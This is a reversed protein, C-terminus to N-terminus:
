AGVGSKMETAVAHAWKLREVAVGVYNEDVEIGIARRGALVAAVLTSGSGAFPDFVVDGLSSSSEILERLLLVPKENPHRKTGRSNPRQYRLVSGSRMRAALRGRGAERNHTDPVYVGFTIPEHQPGWPLELNGMGIMSKDWILECKGGLPLGETLHEPGFVYVHRFPRVRECASAVIGAVSRMDAAHDGEIAPRPESRYGSVFARGYPPDTVLLDTSHRAVTEGLFSASGQYLTATPSEYAVRLESEEASM